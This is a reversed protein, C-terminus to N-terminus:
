LYYCYMDLCQQTIQTENINENFTVQKLILRQTEIRKKDDRFEDVIEKQHFTYHIKLETLWGICKSNLIDLMVDNVEILHLSNLQKLYNLSTFDMPLLENISNNQLAKLDSMVIQKDVTCKTLNLHKLSKCKKLYFNFENIYFGANFITLFEIKPANSTIELSEKIMEHNIDMKFDRLHLFKPLDKECSIISDSMTLNINLELTELLPLKSLFKCLIM